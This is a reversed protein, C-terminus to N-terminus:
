SFGGVSLVPPPPLALKLFFLEPVLYSVIEGFVGDIM